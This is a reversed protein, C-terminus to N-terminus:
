GGFTMLRDSTVSADILQGLGSIQFSPHVTETSKEYRQAESADLLGRKLASSVCLVLEIGEKEALDAWQQTPNVEDQPTVSCSAGAMTGEDLFFVRHIQHSRNIVAKAFNLATFSGHGSTPSSLVLLSYIM